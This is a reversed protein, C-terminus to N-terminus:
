LAITQGRQPFGRFGDAVPDQKPDSGYHYLWMKKRVEEPLTVLDSYHAHVGSRHEGTECDHFILKCQPALECLWDARFQNDGSILLKHDRQSNMSQILLGFSPMVGTPSTFHHTQVPELLNGKWITHKGCELPHVDFYDELRLTKTAGWQMGHKLISWIDDIIAREAFLKPRQKNKNYYTCFGLWELGGVHDAHLHSIYVADFYGSISENTVGFERLSFRIDTGCDFLLRNNDADTIIMNSQYYRQEAGAGGVGAFTVSLTGNM